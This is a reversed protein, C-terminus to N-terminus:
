QVAYRSERLRRVTSAQPGQEGPEESFTVPTGIDLDDYDGDIVSNRHFYVEHGDTAEIFGFDGAIDLRVVRGHPLPEHTKTFGRQRASFDQLRRRAIEFADDIAVVLHKHEPAIELDKHAREVATDQLSAHLDPEHNVVIDEGPVALDIRVRFRNGTVHHRHALELSVRCGLIRPYYRELRSVEERVRREIWDSADLNRYTIQLSEQM